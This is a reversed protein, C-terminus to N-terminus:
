RCHSSKPSAFRMRILVDDSPPAVHPVGCCVAPPSTPMPPWGTTWGLPVTITGMALSSSVAIRAKLDLSPPAAHDAAWATAVAGEWVAASPSRVLGSGEASISREPFTYTAQCSQRKSVPQEAFSMTQLEDASPVVQDVGARIGISGVDDPTSWKM